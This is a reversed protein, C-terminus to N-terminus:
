GSASREILVEGRAHDIVVRHDRLLEMGVLAEQSRTFSAHVTRDEGDFTVAVEYLREFVTTGDALEVEAEGVAKRGRFLRRVSTPLTLAGSFGTDLLADMPVDRAGRVVIPVLPEGAPAFRGRTM